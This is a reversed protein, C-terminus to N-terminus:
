ETNHDAAKKALELAGEKSLAVAMFGNRHAFLADKVGTVEQLDEKQLGCWTEPLPKRSNFERPYVPVARIQWKGEKNYPSVVYLPEPYRTLERIWSHWIKLVIIRKDAAHEYAIRARNYGENAAEQQRIENRLTEGAFILARKFAEDYNEEKEQWTPM